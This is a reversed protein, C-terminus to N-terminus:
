VLSLRDIKSGQQKEGMFPAGLVWQIPLRTQSLTPRCWGFSVFPKNGGPLEIGTRGAWLRLM